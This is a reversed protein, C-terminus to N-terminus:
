RSWETGFISIMSEDDLLEEVFQRVEREGIGQNKALDVLTKYDSRKPNRDSPFAVDLLRYLAKRKDSSLAAAEVVEARRPIYTTPMTRKKSNRKIQDFAAQPIIHANVLERVIKLMFIKAVFRTFGAPAVLDLVQDVLSKPDDKGAM